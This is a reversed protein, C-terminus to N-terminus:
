IKSNELCNQTKKKTPLPLAAGPLKLVKLSVGLDMSVNQRVMHTGIFSINLTKLVTNLYWVLTLSGSDYKLSNNQEDKREISKVVM